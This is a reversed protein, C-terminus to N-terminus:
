TDEEWAFRPKKEGSTAGGTLALYTVADLLTILPFAFILGVVCALLGALFVAFCVCQVLIITGVQSRCLRWSQQLSDLVGGSRDIVIYYYMSLRAFLVIFVLGALGSVVLFLLFAAVGSQNEMMVIGGIIVGTAVVIPVAILVKHVVSALLATLLFRGGRFIDEFTVLEGRAIKLMALTMGIGLWAQIVINAFLILIYLVKFANQDRVGAAMSEQVFNLLISVAFSIGIVGWFISLCARTRETFIAWSWVFVDNVTFPMRAALEPASSSQPPAYPNDSDRDEPRQYPDM